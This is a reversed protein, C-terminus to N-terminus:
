YFCSVSLGGVLKRNAIRILLRMLIFVLIKGTKLRCCFQMLKFTTLTAYLELYSFKDKVQELGVLRHSHLRFRNNVASM